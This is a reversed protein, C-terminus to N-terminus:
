PLVRVDILIGAVNLKRSEVEALHAILEATTDRARAALMKVRSLLADDALTRATYIHTNM